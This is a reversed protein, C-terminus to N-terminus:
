RMNKHKNFTVSNMAANVIHFHGMKRLSFFHFRNPCFKIQFIWDYIAIWKLNKEYMEQLKAGIHINIIKLKKIKLFITIAMNFHVIPTFLRSRLGEMQM